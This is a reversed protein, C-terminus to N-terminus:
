VEAHDDEKRLDDKFTHGPHSESGDEFKCYRAIGKKIVPNSPQVKIDLEIGWLEIDVWVKIEKWIVVLIVRM